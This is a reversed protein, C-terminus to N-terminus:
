GVLTQKSLVASPLTEVSSDFIVTIGLEQLSSVITSPTKDYGYVKAGQLVLYRAISSMGIGGIGIFYYTKKEFNM